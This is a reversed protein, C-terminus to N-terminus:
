QSAVGARARDNRYVVGDKRVFMVREMVGVDATPDGPVAVVYALKGAELAGIDKMGLLEADVSTASRLADIPRMGNEVM